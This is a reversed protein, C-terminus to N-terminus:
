GSVTDKPSASVGASGSSELLLFGSLLVSGGGGGRFQQSIPM